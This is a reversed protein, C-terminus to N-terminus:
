CHVADHETEVLGIQFDQEDLATLVGGALGAAPEFGTESAIRSKPLMKPPSTASATMVDSVM